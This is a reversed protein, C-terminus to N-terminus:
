DDTIAQSNVVFGPSPFTVVAMLVDHSVSQLVVYRLKVGLAKMGSVVPFVTSYDPM